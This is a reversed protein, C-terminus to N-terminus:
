PMVADALIDNFEEHRKASRMIWRVLGKMRRGNKTIYWRGFGRFDVDVETDGICVTLQEM